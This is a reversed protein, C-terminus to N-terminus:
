LNIAYWQTNNGKMKRTSNVYRPWGNQTYLLCHDMKTAPGYDWEVPIRWQYLWIDWLFVRREICENHVIQMVLAGNLYNRYLARRKIRVINVDRQQGVSLSLSYFSPSVFYCSRTIVSSQRRSLLNMPRDFGIGGMYDRTQCHWPNKRAREGHVFTSAM